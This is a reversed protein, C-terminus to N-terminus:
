MNQKVEKKTPEENEAKKDDRSEEVNEEKKGNINKRQGKQRM